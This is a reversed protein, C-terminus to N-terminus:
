EKVVISSDSFVRNSPLESTKSGSLIHQKCKEGIYTRSLFRTHSSINLLIERPAATRGYWSLQRANSNTYCGAYWLNAWGLGRM